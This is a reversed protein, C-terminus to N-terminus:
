RKRAVYDGITGDSEYHQLRAETPASPRRAAGHSYREISSM